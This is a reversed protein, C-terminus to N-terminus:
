NKSKGHRQLEKLHNEANTKRKQNHWNVGPYRRLFANFQDSSLQLQSRIEQGKKQPNALIIELIQRDTAYIEEQSRRSYSQLRKKKLLPTHDNVYKSVQTSICGVMNAVKKHPTNIDKTLIEKIMEKQVDTLSNVSKTYIRLDPRHRSTYKAIEKATLGLRKAIEAHTMNNKGDRRAELFEAAKELKRQKEALEDKQITSSSLDPRHKNVYKSVQTDKCGVIEAIEAYTMNNRSDRRAELFNVIQNKQANSLREAIHAHESEEEDDSVEEESDSSLAIAPAGAAAGAGAGGGRVSFADSDSADDDSESEEESDTLPGRVLAGTVAGARPNKIGPINLVRGNGMDEDDESESETEFADRVPVAPPVVVAFADAQLADGWGLRRRQQQPPLVPAAVPEMDEDDSLHEAVPEAAVETPLAGLSRLEADIANKTRNAREKEESDSTRPAASAMRLVNKLNMADQPNAAVQLASMIAPAQRKVGRARHGEENFMKRQQPALDFYKNMLTKALLLDNIRNDNNPSYGCVSILQAQEIFRVKPGKELDNLKEWIDRRESKRPDALNYADITYTDSGLPIEAMESELALRKLRAWGVKLDNKPDHNIVLHVLSAIDAYTANTYNMADQAASSWGAFKVLSRLKYVYKKEHLRAPSIDNVQNWLKKFAYARQLSAGGLLGLDAYHQRISEEEEPTLSINQDRHLLRQIFCEHGVERELQFDAGFINLILCLVFITKLTMISDIRPKIYLTYLWKPM